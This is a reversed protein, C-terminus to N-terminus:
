EDEENEKEFIPRSTKLEIESIKQLRRRFREERSFPTTLWVELIKKAAEPELYDAALCLINSDTDNRSDYAQDPNSVLAARVKIFKNAVVAMGVGSGCILVGRSNEYDLSVREAVAAVFDPYDDAEDYFGNGLDAM